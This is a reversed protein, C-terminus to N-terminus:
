GTWVLAHGSRSSPAGQQPWDVHQGRVYVDAHGSRPSPEGKQSLAAWTDEAFCYRAGDGFTTGMGEGGFEIM